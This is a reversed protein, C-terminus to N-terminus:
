SCKSWIKSEIERRRANLQNMSDGSGGARLKQKIEEVDARYEDCESAAQALAEQQARARQQAQQAELAEKERRMQEDSKSPPNKATTTNALDGRGTTQENVCDAEVLTRVELPSGELRYAQVVTKKQKVTIEYAAGSKDIDKLAQELTIGKVKGKAAREAFAAVESCSGPAPKDGPRQTTTVLRQGEGCPKDQYSGDPCRFVGAANAYNFAGLLLAGLAIACIEKNAM